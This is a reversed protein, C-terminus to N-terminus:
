DNCEGIAQQTGDISQLLRVSDIITVGTIGDINGVIMQNATLTIEGTIFKLMADADSITRNGDGDLDGCAPAIILTSEGSQAPITGAEHNKLSIADLELHAELPEITPITKFSLRALSLSEGSVSPQCDLEATVEGPANLDIALSCIDSQADAFDLAAKDYLVKIFANGINRAEDAQVIAEFETNPTVKQPAVIELNVPVISFNAPSSQREEQSGDLRVSLMATYEGAVALADQDPNWDVDIEIRAGQSMGKFTQPVTGNLETVDLFRISAEILNLADAGDDEDLTVNGEELPSPM